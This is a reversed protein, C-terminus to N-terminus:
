MPSRWNKKPSVTSPFLYGLCGGPITSFGQLYHSLSGVEGPSRLIESILGYKEGLCSAVQPFLGSVPMLPSAFDM